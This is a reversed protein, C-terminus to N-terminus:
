PQYPRGPIPRQYRTGRAAHYKQAVSSAETTRDRVSPRELEQEPPSRPRGGRPRGGAGRPHRLAARDRHAATRQRGPIARLVIGVSQHVLVETPAHRLKTARMTRSSSTPPEFGRAGVMGERVEAAAHLRAGVAPGFRAGVAGGDRTEDHDEARV